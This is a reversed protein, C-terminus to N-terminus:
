LRAFDFLSAPHPGFTITAEAEDAVFERGSLLDGREAIIQSAHM